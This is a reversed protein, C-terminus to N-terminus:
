QADTYFFVILFFFNTSSLFIVKSDLLLDGCFYKSPYDFVFVEQIEIKRREKEKNLSAARDKVNLLRTVEELEM